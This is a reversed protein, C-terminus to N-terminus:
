KLNIYPFSWASLNKEHFQCTVHVDVFTLTTPREWVQIHSTCRWYKLHDNKLFSITHIYIWVYTNRLVWSPRRFYTITSVIEICHRYLTPVIDTCHRYLTSVIDICHRYLTSVINICHRYWTSAMYICHQYLTLAMDICHRYLALVIAICHSQPWKNNQQSLCVCLFHRITYTWSNWKTQSFFNSQLVTLGHVVLWALFSTRNSLVKARTYNEETEFSLFHKM